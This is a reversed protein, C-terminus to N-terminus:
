GDPGERARVYPPCSRAPLPPERFRKSGLVEPAPHRDPAECIANMRPAQIATPLVSAGAAQEQLLKLVTRKSMNM